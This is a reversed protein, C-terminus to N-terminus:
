AGATEPRRWAIRSVTVPTDLGKFAREGVPTVAHGERDLRDCVAQTAYIEDADAADCVRRALNVATGYLDGHAAVPEGLNLGIRVHLDPADPLAREAALRRQIDIAADVAERADEFALMSGDGTRKVAKGARGGLALSVARDHVAVLTLAAQDGLRVGWATSDVIDTFVITRDAPDPGGDRHLARGHADVLPTGLFAELMLPAIEIIEEATNGHAVEHVAQCAQADPGEAICFVTGAEENLFYQHYTVGFRSQAEVDALHAAAVEEYTLPEDRRHVDMFFPVRV